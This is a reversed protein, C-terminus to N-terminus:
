QNRPTISVHSLCCAVGDPSADCALMIPLRPDFHALVNNNTVAGKAAKYAQQEREGWTWEVDKRLLDYLPSLLQAHNNIFRAYYMILGIFQRLQLVDTPEPANMIASVKEDTPHLGDKDMCYGLYTVETQAFVCKGRQARLGARALRELTERLSEKLQEMSPAAILVDDIFYAVGPIGHLLNDMERQFVAPSSSIGFVLRTVRFLGKSTNVTVLEQSQEDLMLQQFAQSLDIKCFLTSGALKSFIEEITPM